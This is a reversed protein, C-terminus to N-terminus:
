IPNDDVNGKGFIQDCNNNIKMCQEEIAIKLERKLKQKAKAVVEQDSQYDQELCIRQKRHGNKPVIRNENIVLHSNQPWVLQEDQYLKFGIDEKM